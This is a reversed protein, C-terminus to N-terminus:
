LASCRLGEVNRDGRRPKIMNQPRNRPNGETVWPLEGDGGGPASFLSLNMNKSGEYGLHLM